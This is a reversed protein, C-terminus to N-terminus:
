KKQLKKIVSIEKYLKDIRDERISIAHEYESLISFYNDLTENERLLVQIGEMYYNRKKESQSLDMKTKYEDIQKLRKVESSLYKVYKYLGDIEYYIDDIVVKFLAKLVKLNIKGFQYNMNLQDLAISKKIDEPKSDEILENLTESINVHTKYQRKSTIADYEDAVRIIQAVYPIEDKTLGNPYGSGNLAEHHYLAGASYPKLKEDKMCMEYGYITHEKMIEYEEDTLKSPKQLISSPVKLKGIDHLYACITSYATFEKRCHLYECIRCVLNAVNESHKRTVNDLTGLIQLQEKVTKELNYSRLNIPSYFNFNENQM